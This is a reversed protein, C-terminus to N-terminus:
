FDMRSKNNIAANVNGAGAGSGLPHTESSFDRERQISHLEEAIGGISTKPRMNTMSQGLPNEIMNNIQIKKLQSMSNTTSHITDPVKYTNPYQLVTRPRTNSDVQPHIGQNYFSTTSQQHIMGVSPQHFTDRFDMSQNIM